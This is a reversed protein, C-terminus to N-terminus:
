LYPPLYIDYRHKKGKIEFSPPFGKIFPAIIPRKVVVRKKQPYSLSCRLLEASDEDDGVLERLIRMKIKTLASRGSKPYMPDLFLTDFAEDSNELFNKADSCVLRVNTKLFKGTEHHECGRRLGDELLAWIIPSREVLVIVCGLGALVFGDGGFGATLDCIKPRVGQKIGVARAVPQNIKRDFKYRYLSAGSSFNISLPNTSGRRPRNDCLELTGKRYQFFYDWEDDPSSALPLGHTESLRKLLDETDLESKGTMIGIKLYVRM